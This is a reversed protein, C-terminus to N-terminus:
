RAPSQSRAGLESVLQSVRRDIDDHGEIYTRATAEGMELRFKDLAIAAATMYYRADSASRAADSRDIHATATELLRRRTRSRMAAIQDAEEQLDEPTNNLSRVHEAHWRYVTVHSCGVESVAAWVSETELLELARAKDADTYSM